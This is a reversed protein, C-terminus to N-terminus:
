GITPSSQVVTTRTPITVVMVVWRWWWWILSNHVMWNDHHGFFLHGSPTVLSMMWFTFLFFFGFFSVFITITRVNMIVNSGDMWGDM